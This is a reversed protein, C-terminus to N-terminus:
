ADATINRFVLDSIQGMRRSSDAFENQALTIYFLRWDANEIRIDEFSYGSM